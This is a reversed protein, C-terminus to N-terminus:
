IKLIKEPFNAYAGSGGLIHTCSYHSYNNKCSFLWIINFIRESYMGFRVLGYVTKLFKKM